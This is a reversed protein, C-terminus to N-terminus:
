SIKNVLSYLADLVQEPTVGAFHLAVLCCVGLVVDLARM